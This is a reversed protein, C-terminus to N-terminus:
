IFCKNFLSFNTLYFTLLSLKSLRSFRRLHRWHRFPKEVNVKAYYNANIGAKEALDLQTLSKSLRFAKLKKAIRPDITENTM